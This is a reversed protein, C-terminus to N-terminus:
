RLKVQSPKTGKELTGRCLESGCKCLFSDSKSGFCKFNYDYTLEENMDINKIAFIGIRKRATSSDIWCQTECNPTCSSNIYRSVNGKRRGDIYIDNDLQMFYFNPESSKCQRVRSLMHKELIVEGVYEIIFDGAKAPELVRLGCGRHKTRFVETRFPIRLHFPTNQCHDGCAKPDCTVCTAVNVCIEALTCMVGSRACNCSDAPLNKPVKCNWHNQTINSFSSRVKIEKGVRREGCAAPDDSPSVVNEETDCLGDDDKSELSNDFGRQVTDTDTDTVTVTDTDTIVDRADRKRKERRERVDLEERWLALLRRVEPRIVERFWQLRTYSM